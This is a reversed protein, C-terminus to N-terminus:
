ESYGGFQPGGGLTSASVTEKPHSSICDLGTPRLHTCCVKPRTAQNRHKGIEGVRHCTRSCFSVHRGGPVVLNGISHASKRDEFEHCGRFCESDSRRFHERLSVSLLFRSRHRGLHGKANSLLSHGLPRSRALSIPVLEAVRWRYRSRSQHRRQSLFRALPLQTSRFLSRVCSEMKCGSREPNSRQPPM